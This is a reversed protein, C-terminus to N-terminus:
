FRYFFVFGNMLPALVIGASNQKKNLHLAPVLYGYLSGIAAGAIVDTLFHSGSRIRNVAVVMALSYGIGVLPTKWGSDPYDKLVISTLFGASMFAISTHGSPFSKYCDDELGSPVPGFYAYPRNRRAINKLIDKTGNALMFAEAYMIGYTLLANPDKYNRIAPALPLAALTYLIVDGAKDLDRDYPFMLPRDFDNVSDRSFSDDRPRSDMFFPAAFVGISLSGIVLDKRLSYTYASEAFGRFCVAAMGFIFVYKKM